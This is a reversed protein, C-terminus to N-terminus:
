PRRHGPEIEAIGLAEIEADALDLTVLDLVVGGALAHRDSLDLAPERRDEVVDRRLILGRLLAGHLFRHRLGHGGGLGSVIDGRLVQGRMRRAAGTRYM